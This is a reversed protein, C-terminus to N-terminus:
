GIQNDTVLSATGAEVSHSETLDVLGTPESWAVAHFMGDLRFQGVAVSGDASWVVGEAAEGAVETLPTAAVPASSLDALLLCRGDVFALGHRQRPAVSGFAAGEFLPPGLSAAGLIGQVARFSGTPPDFLYGEVPGALPSQATVSHALFLGALLLVPRLLM